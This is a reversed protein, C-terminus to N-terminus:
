NSFGLKAGVKVSINQNQNIRVSTDDNGSSSFSVSLTLQEAQRINPFRSEDFHIFVEKRNSGKAFGAQDVPAGDVILTKESFLSDIVQGFSSLFYGQISAELPVTNESVVKFEAKNVNNINDLDLNVTDNATFEDVNVYLPLDVEVQVNYFSSDTLFGRVNPDGDPNTIADVDYDVATPGSGLIADINSNDKDFVFPKSKVQGVEDPEPFPFDFGEEIIPSELPLKIGGVTFVELVNVVSRTPFGFSNQVNFTLTPEAFYIDGGVYNDFFDIIITDRGGEYNLTGFFGETYSFELDQITVFLQELVGEGGSETQVKYDVYVSDNLPIITYGELSIPADQINVFPRQGEGSWAPLNATTTFPEGDKQLEPLTITVEVPELNPSNLFYSFKGAKLEMYDIMIGDPSSLPLAMGPELIPIAPPLANNINEFIQDVGATIVDGAYRLRLNGDPDILLTNADQFDELLEQISITSNMIPVAYEAQYDIDSLDEIPSIENCGVLLLVSLIVPWCFNKKM